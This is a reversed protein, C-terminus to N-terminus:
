LTQTRANSPLQQLGATVAFPTILTIGEATVIVVVGELEVIQEPSTAVNVALPSVIPELPLANIPVPIVAGLEVEQGFGREAHNPPVFCWISNVTDSNFAIPNVAPDDIVEIPNLIAVALATPTQLSKVIRRPVVANVEKVPNTLPVVVFYLPEYVGATPM